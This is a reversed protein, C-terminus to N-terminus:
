DIDLLSFRKSGEADGEAAPKESQQPQAGQQPAAPQAPRQAAQPAAAPQQSPPSAGSGPNSSISL